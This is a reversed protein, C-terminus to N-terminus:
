LCLSQQHKFFQNACLHGGRTNRRFQKETLTPHACMMLEPLVDDIFCLLHLHIFLSNKFAKPTFDILLSILGVV